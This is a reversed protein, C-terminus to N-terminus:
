PSVRKIGEVIESQVEITYEQNAAKAAQIGIPDFNSSFVSIVAPAVVTTAIIATLIIGFNLIRRNM